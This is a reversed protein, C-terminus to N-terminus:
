SSKSEYQLAQSQYLSGANWYHAAIESARSPMSDAYYRVLQEAARLHLQSRKLATCNFYIIRAVLQHPFALYLEHDDESQEILFHRAILLDLLKYDETSLPSSLLTPPFPRAIVAAQELLEIAREPLRILRSLVADRIKTSHQLLALPFDPQSPDCVDADHEKQDIFLRAVEALFLANGQTAQYCQEASCASAPTHTNLYDSVENIRFPSLHLAHFYSCRSLSLLMPYLPTNEQVDESRYALLLLLSNSQSTMSSTTSTCALRHLVLISAEDAWQLNDIAVICPREQSLAQFLDVFSTILGSYAQEANLFSVPLLGPFQMQLEPLLHALVALVSSPLSALEDGGLEALWAKVIVLLPAFLLGQELASCDAILTAIHSSRAFNLVHRLLFSKGVGMEGVLAITRTRQRTQKDQLLDIYHRIYDITDKRGIM